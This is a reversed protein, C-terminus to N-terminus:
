ELLHDGIWFLLQRCDGIISDSGPSYHKRLRKTCRLLSITHGTSYGLGKCDGSSDNSPLVQGDAVTGSKRSACFCHLDMTSTFLFIGTLGQLSYIM